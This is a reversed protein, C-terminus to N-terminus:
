FLQIQNPNKPKRPKSVKPKPLQEKAMEQQVAVMTNYLDQCFYSFVEANYERITAEKAASPSATQLQQKFFAVVKHRRRQMAARLNKLNNIGNKNTAPVISYPM